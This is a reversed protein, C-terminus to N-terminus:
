KSVERMMERAPMRKFCHLNSDGDTVNIVEVGPFKKLGEVLPEFGKLFRDYSGPPIPAPRYNHWHTKKHKENEKMDFGLLFIRPSGLLFAVNVAAAGTSVNWGLTDPRESLGPEGRLFQILWPLSVRLTDNCISYVIGGTKSYEELDIRVKNWWKTDAFLVRSCVSAGLRFADNAGLTKRGSLFSFDFDLLSAGGGIVFSDSGSWEPKIDAKM